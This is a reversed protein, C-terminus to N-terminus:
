DTKDAYGHVVGGWRKDPVESDNVEAAGAQRDSPILRDFIGRDPHIGTLM